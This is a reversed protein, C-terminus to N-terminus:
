KIFLIAIRIIVWYIMRIIVIILLLATIAILWGSLCPYWVPCAFDYRFLEKSPVKVDQSTVMTDSAPYKALENVWCDLYPQSPYNYGIGDCYESVKAYINGNPNGVGIQSIEEKARAIADNAARTYKHELYFAGTGFVYSKKGDSEVPTIVIHTSAFDSLELLARNIEEDNESEDAVIVADRLTILHEADVHLVNACWFSLLIAILALKWNRVRFIAILINKISLKKHKKGGM